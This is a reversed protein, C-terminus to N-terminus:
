VRETCEIYIVIPQGSKEVVLDVIVSRYGKRSGELQYRGPKLQISKERTEGVVGVGLVKIYTKNDSRVIVDIPQNEQEILAEVLTIKAALEASLQGLSSYASIANVARSRINNDALRAPRQIYSDLTQNAAIIQKSTAQAQQIVLSDPYEAAGKNALLQVTAWEDASAFLQINSELAQLENQKIASDIQAAVTALEPRSSDIRKAIALQEQARKFDGADIASVLTSMAEAFRNDRISANVRELETQAKTQEADLAVIQQYADRQKALNGEIKGIRAQEYLAAIQPYADIRQQLQLAEAYNAKVQLAGQNLEDATNIDGANFAQLAQQYAETYAREFDVLYSDLDQSLESVLSQASAFNAGAYANYATDITTQFGKVTTPQWQSAYSQALLSNVQQSVRDLEAQLAERNVTIVTSQPPETEAVASSHDTSLYSLLTVVAAITLIALLSVVTATVIVKKKRARSRTIEEDISM